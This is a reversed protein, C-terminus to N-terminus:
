LTFSIGERAPGPRPGTEGLAAWDRLSEIWQHILDAEGNLFRAGYRGLSRGQNALIEVDQRIVKRTYPPLLWRGLLDLAGLGLRFCIYTYVLTRLPGVPTCQSNIIFSRRDGFHYDVRTVNPMHFRDTHTMPEGTPNLIFRSFGISDREQHYTVLVADETREVEARVHMRRESRFWGAHVFVTHPVDVFNEACNTVDNEFPTVMYYHTWGREGHHPFRWPECRISAPDGMYVWVLGDLERTPFRELATRPTASGCPVQVCRGQADYTWGHYPCRLCGERLTGESLMANRHLCRDLLCVAHGAEDRFLVLAEELIVRGLPRERGLEGATCAVYWRDRLTGCSDRMRAGNAGTM